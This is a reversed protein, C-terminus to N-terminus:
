TIIKLSKIINMQLIRISLFVHKNSVKELQSKWAVKASSVIYISVRQKLNEMVIDLFPKIRDERLLSNFAKKKLVDAFDELQIENLMADQEELVEDDYIRSSDQLQYPFFEETFMMVEDRRRREVATGSIGQM